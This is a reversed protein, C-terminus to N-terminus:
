QRLYPCRIFILAPFKLLETEEIVDRKHQYLHMVCIVKELNPTFDIVVRLGTQTQFM